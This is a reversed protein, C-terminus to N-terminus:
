QQNRLVGNTKRLEYIRNNLIEEFNKPLNLTQRQEPTLQKIIKKVTKITRNVVNGFRFDGWTLLRPVRKANPNILYNLTLGLNTRDIGYHCGQYTLGKDTMEFFKKISKVFDDTVVIGARERGPIARTNDLPLRLYEFGLEKCLKDFDSSGESRFDVIRKIGAQRLKLLEEPSKTAFTAGSLNGSELKRLNSINLTSITNFDLPESVKASITEPKAIDVVNHSNSKQFTDTTLDSLKAPIDNSTANKKTNKIIKKAVDLADDYLNSIPKLIIRM